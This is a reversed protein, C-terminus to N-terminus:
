YLGSGYDQAMMDFVQEEEMTPPIPLQNYSQNTGMGVYNNGVNANGVSKNGSFANLMGLNMLLSSVSSMPDTYQGVSQGMGQAGINPSPTLLNMVSSIAGLESGALQSELGAVGLEGQQRSEEIGGAIRQRGRLALDSAGTEGSSELASSLRDEEEAVRSSLNGEMRRRFAKPLATTQEKIRNLADFGGSSTFEARRQKMLNSFYKQEKKIAKSAPDIGLLKMTTDAVSLGIMATGFGGMGGGTAMESM